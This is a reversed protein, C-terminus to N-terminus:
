LETKLPKELHHEVFARLALRLEKEDAPTSRIDSVSDIPAKALRQLLAISAAEL